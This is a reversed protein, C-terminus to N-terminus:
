VLLHSLATKVRPGAVSPSYNSTCGDAESLAQFELCFSTNDLILYFVIGNQMEAGPIHCSNQIQSLIQPIRYTYISIDTNFPLLNSEWVPAHWKKYIYVCIFVCLLIFWLIVGRLDFTKLGSLVFGWEYVGCFPFGQWWGVSIAEFILWFLCYVVITCFVLNSVFIFM